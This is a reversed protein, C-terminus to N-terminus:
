DYSHSFTVVEGNERVLQRAYVERPGFSDDVVGEVTVREGPLAPVVNPGVYIRISGSPDALRFTDTDTIGDVTGTLTVAMGPRIQSIATLPAAALSAAVLALMAALAPTKM